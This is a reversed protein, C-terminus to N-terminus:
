IWKGQASEQAVCSFVIKHDKWETNGLVIDAAAIATSTAHKSRYDPVTAAMLFSVSNLFYLLLRKIM